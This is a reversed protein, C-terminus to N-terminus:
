HTRPQWIGQAVEIYQHTNLYHAVQREGVNYTRQRDLFKDTIFTVGAQIALDIEAFPPDLRERRNGEASIFVKDTSTYEGSNALTGYDLAYQHTSSRTSGQGIFKNAQDAKRQDKSTYPSTQTLQVM